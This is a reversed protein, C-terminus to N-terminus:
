EFESGRGTPDLRTETESNSELKVAYLYLALHKLSLVVFM